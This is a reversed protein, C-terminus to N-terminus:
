FSFVQVPLKTTPVGIRAILLNNKERRNDSKGLRPTTVSRHVGQDPLLVQSTDGRVTDAVCVESSKVTNYGVSSSKVGIQSEADRDIENEIFLATKPEFGQHEM